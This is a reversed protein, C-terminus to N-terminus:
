WLSIATAITSFIHNSLSFFLINFFFQHEDNQFIQIWSISSAGSHQMAAPTEGAFLIYASM